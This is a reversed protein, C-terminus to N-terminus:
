DVGVLCWSCRSHSPVPCAEVLHPTVLPNPHHLPLWQHKLGEVAAQLVWIHHSTDSHMSWWTSNRDLVGRVGVLHISESAVPVHWFMLWCTTRHLPMPEKFIFPHYGCLSCCLLLLGIKFRYLLDIWIDTLTKGMVEEFVQAWGEVLLDRRHAPWLPNISGSGDVEHCLNLLSCLCPHLRQLQPRWNSGSSKAKCIKAYDQRYINTTWQTTSLWQTTLLIIKNQHKKQQNLCVQENRVKWGWWEDLWLQDGADEVQHTPHHWGICSGTCCGEDWRDKGALVLVQKLFFVAKKSCQAISATCHVNPELQQKVGLWLNVSAIALTQCWTKNLDSKVVM